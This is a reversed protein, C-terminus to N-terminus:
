RRATGAFEKTSSRRAAVISRLLEIRPDMQAAWGFVERYRAQGRQALAYLEDPDNLYREMKEVIAAGTPEVFLMEVGDTFHVNQNLTDSAVVAVGSMAAEITAGTPFGDFVGPRTGQKTPSIIADMSLYLTSLRETNLPGHFTIRDRIEAVDVHNKAFGGIVHFHVHPYREAIVKAARIFAPYGKEDGQKSYKFAVFCIDLTKKHQRYLRKKSWEISEYTQPMVGGIIEVIKKEDCLNRKKVYDTVLRQTTIMAVCNPSSSVRKVMEDSDAQGLKFNGGPYLTFVFPLHNREFYPLFKDALSIFVCYALDADIRL